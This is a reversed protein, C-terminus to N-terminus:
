AKTGVLCHFLFSMQVLGKTRGGQDWRRSRGISWLTIIMDIVSSLSCHDIYITNISVTMDSTWFTLNDRLIKMILTSDKYLEDGLADLETIACQCQGVYLFLSRAVVVNLKLL